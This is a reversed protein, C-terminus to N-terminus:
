PHRGYPSPALPAPAGVAPTPPPKGAAPAPSLKVATRPSGADIVVRPGAEKPAASPIAPADSAVVDPPPSSASGPTSAVPPPPSALVDGDRPPSRSFAWAAAMAALGGVVAGVLAVRRVALGRGMVLTTSSTSVSITATKTVEAPVPVVAPMAPRAVTPPEDDQGARAPPFPVTPPPRRLDSPTLDHLDSRREHLVMVEAAHARRRALKPGALRQVFAGVEAPEAPFIGSSRCADALARAFAAATPWRAEVPISLAQAVVRELAAPLEPRVARLGPAPETVIKLLISLEDLDKNYMRRGTFIEWAIVGGAWVDCRRDVAHGRAQEPSMYGIKGKLTGTQTHGLRTAAKAIGFDALRSMGDVGVLINQPSFDRHVLGLLAGDDGRLEHAAHLGALADLLIRLGYAPPLEAGEAAEARRTLGALSDGEVYDMVLFLGFPDDGIDLTAVVNPHRIKVALKAEEVLDTAFSGQERLHAHTLKLAVEREFGGLGRSRALYVTAMGGSAIPVLVEYRGIREPVPTQSQRPTPLM